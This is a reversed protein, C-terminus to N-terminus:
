EDRKEENGKSVLEYVQPSSVPWVSWLVKNLSTDEQKYHADTFDAVLINHSSGATFPTLLPQSTCHWDGQIHHLAERDRDSLVMGSPSHSLPSHSTTSHTFILHFSFLPQKSNVWAAVRLQRDLDGSQVAIPAATGCSSRPHM